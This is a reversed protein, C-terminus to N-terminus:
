KSTITSNDFARTGGPSAIVTNDGVEAQAYYNAEIAVGARAEDGNQDSARASSSTRSSRACRTTSRLLHRRRAGEVTTAVRGRGDVDREDHDRAASTGHVHNDMVTVMSSHM